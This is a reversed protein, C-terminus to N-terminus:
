SRPRYFSHCSQCSARLSSVSSSMNDLGSGAVDHLETSRDIMATFNAKFEDVNGRVGQARTLPVCPQDSGPLWNRDQNLSAAALINEARNEAVERDYPVTGAVMAELISLNYEIIHFQGQRAAIVGSFEDQTGDRAIAAGAALGAASLLLISSILSRPYSM